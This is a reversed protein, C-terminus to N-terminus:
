AKKGTKTVKKLWWLFTLYARCKRQKLYMSAYTIRLNLCIGFGFM